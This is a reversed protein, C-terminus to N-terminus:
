QGLSMSQDSCLFRMFEPTRVVPIAGSRNVDFHSWAKAFYTALYADAATGNIGKHTNLVEYAAAKAATEDMTFVGTPDGAKIGAKKDEETEGEVAYKVIMSRIFLDDSDASFRTPLRDGRTYGKRGVDGPYAKGEDEPRFMIQNAVAVDEDDSDSSDSSDDSDQNAIAVNARYMRNSIYQNREVEAASVLGLLALIAFTRM